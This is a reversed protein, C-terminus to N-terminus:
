ENKRRAKARQSTIGKGRYENSIIYKEMRGTCVKEKGVSIIM